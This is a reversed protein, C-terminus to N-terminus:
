AKNPQTQTVQFALDDWDDGNAKFNSFGSAKAKYQHARDYSADQEAWRGVSDDKRPWGKASYKDMFDAHPKINLRACHRAYCAVLEEDSMGAAKTARKKKKADNTGATETAEAEAERDPDKGEGGKSQKQLTDIYAKLNNDLVKRICHLMMRAEGTELEPAECQGLSKRHAVCYEWIKLRDGDPIGCELMDDLWETMLVLSERAKAAIDTKTRGM